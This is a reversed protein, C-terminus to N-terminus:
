GDKDKQHKPRRIPPLLCTLSLRSSTESKATARRSIASSPHNQAQQLQGNSLVLLSADHRRLAFMTASQHMGQQQYKNSAVSSQRHMGQQGYKNSAASSQEIVRASAFSPLMITM